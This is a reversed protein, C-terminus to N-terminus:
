KLLLLETVDIVIAMNWFVKLEDECQARETDTEGALREVRFGFREFGSDALTTLVIPTVGRELAAAAMRSAAQSCDPLAENVRVGIYSRANEDSQWLVHSPSVYSTKRDRMKSKRKKRTTEPEPEFVVADLDVPKNWTVRSMVDSWYEDTM